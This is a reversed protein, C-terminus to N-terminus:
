SRLLDLLLMCLLLVFLTRFRLRAWWYGPIDDLLILDSEQKQSKKMQPGPEKALLMSQNIQCENGMWRKTHKFSNRRATSPLYERYDTPSDLYRIANWVRVEESWGYARRQEKQTRDAM